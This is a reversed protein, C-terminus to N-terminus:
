SPPSEATKRHARLWDIEHELRKVMAGRTQGSHLVVVSLPEPEVYDPDLPDHRYLEGPDWFYLPIAEELWDDLTRPDSRVHENLDPEIRVEFEPYREEIQEAAALARDYARRVAHTVIAVDLDQPPAKTPDNM